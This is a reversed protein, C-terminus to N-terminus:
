RRANTGAVSTERGTVRVAEQPLQILGYGTEADHGKVYLDRASTRLAVRVQDATWDRHRSWTLAALAAAQPAAASTGGFPRSRWSSPFPVPAVLDPKPQTSNPGCSSYALRRNDAGVAGVATVAAGDGPFCISGEARAVELGSQLAYCHFFGAPGRTLRARLQYTHNPRPDFRAVACCREEDASAVSRAVEARTECDYVYLDYNAGPKWCLDVSVPERGWPTLVNDKCGPRWEHFGDGGDHFQGSWHREAINGASAFFLQDGAKSGNGLLRALAAHVPGGGEGDSWEPSIVSCSILQAGESHAWNVAALFQDSNDPQWNALLIEAKPALAHIVEACLIGHQSDKAELNADFRFSKVTVQAPLAKGLFDRYGRFGSDLVAIKIGQGLYGDAHWRDVGLRALHEALPSRAGAEVAPAARSALGTAPKEALAVSGTTSIMVVSALWSLICVSFRLAPVSTLLHRM